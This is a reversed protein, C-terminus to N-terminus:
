RPKAYAWRLDLTHPHEPRQELRKLRVPFPAHGHTTFRSARRAAAEFGTLPPEEYGRGEPHWVHYQCGGLARQGWQDVVDLRIPHQIPIDPQLCNPPQWARFRVGAVGEGETGSPFLPLEFGNVSVVHRGPVLGQVSVQLRELSSDVYRAVAPGAPQEGLTAWPELASRLELVVDGLELRGVSPCRFDLFPRYWESDLGLDHRQLDSCVSKFD